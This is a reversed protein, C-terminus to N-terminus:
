IPIGVLLVCIHYIVLVQLQVHGYITAFTLVICHQLCSADTGMREMCRKGLWAISVGM